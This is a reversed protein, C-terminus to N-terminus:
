GLFPRMIGKRGTLLQSTDDSLNLGSHQQAMEEVTIGVGYVKDAYADRASRIRLDSDAVPLPKSRRAQRRWTNTPTSGISQLDVSTREQSSSLPQLVLMLAILRLVTM